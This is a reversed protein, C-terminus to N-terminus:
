VHARGIKTNNNIRRFFSQTYDISTINLPSINWFGYTHCLYAKVYTGLNDKLMTFWVNIFKEKNQNLWQNNFCDNFKIPDVFSFNYGDRWMDLPLITNLIERDTESIYGDSVLVAGIQALPVGISERFVADNSIINKEGVALIANIAFLVIFMSLIYNRIKLKAILLILLIIIVIYKGNSRLVNIGFLSMLFVIYFKKNKIPEGCNEILDYLLPITALICLSFLTDKVLTISYDAVTPMLAYYTIVLNIYSKKIGKKSLWSIVWAIILSMVLMQVVVLIAYAITMNHTLKTLFRIGYYIILQYILTQNFNHFSMICNITDNMGTGPFYLWFWLGWCATNIVFVKIFVRPNGDITKVQYINIKYILGDIREFLIYFAIALLIFLIFYEFSFIKVNLGQMIDKRLSPEFFSVTLVGILSLCLSFSAIIINKRKLGIGHWFKKM